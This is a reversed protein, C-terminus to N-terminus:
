KVLQLQGLVNPPAAREAYFKKSTRPSKHRASEQAAREGARDAAWTLASHRLAGRFGPVGAVDAAEEVAAAYREISFGGADRLERAAAAGVPGVRTRFVEGNKHLTELIAATGDAVQHEAPKLIRGSAAFRALETVHWGTSAALRLHPRYDTMHRVQDIDIERAAALRARRRQPELEAVVKQVQEPTREKQMTRQAPQSQPVALDVTPDEAATLLHRERRLWSYLTKLAAIKHARSKVRKPRELTGDLAPVIVGALSVGRLDRDGLQEAWWALAAKQEGVWKRTNHRTERSWTLFGQALQLDLYIPDSPPSGKPDYSDPDAEFRALQELAARATHCRTSVHYRQGRVSRHIYYTERGRGDVRVYGGEWLRDAM